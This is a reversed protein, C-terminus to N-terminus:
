PVRRLRAMVPRESPLIEGVTGDGRAQEWRRVHKVLNGLGHPEVSAAHDTGVAARNLTLHRELMVAGLVVACLSTWLGVEHGSYGIPLNFRERLAPIALLNLDEPPCPYTSRCWLLILRDPGLAAVARQIQAMTSMGVSAVVPRGTRRCAELLSIDTLCASPIKLFPPDYALLFALSPLDWVSATWPLGLARCEAAIADYADRGLEIREKYEIYPMTEGWPTQKPRTWEAEPVSLRPRRKQFKVCDAGAAKAARCLLLARDISGDHNIGAEAVVYCPAAGGVQRGGIQVDM